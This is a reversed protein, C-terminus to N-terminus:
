EQVEEKELKYKDLVADDCFGNPYAKRLREGNKAIKQEITEEDETVWLNKTRGNGEGALCCRGSVFLKTRNRGVGGGKFDIIESVSIDFVQEHYPIKYLQHLGNHLFPETTTDTYRHLRIYGLELPEDEKKRNRKLYAEVDAKQREYLEQDNKKKTFISM